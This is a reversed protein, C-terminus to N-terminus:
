RAGEVGDAQAAAAKLARPVLVRILWRRYAVSAHIDGLPTSEEAALAGADRLATESWSADQLSAEAQRARFPVPGAGGIAIQAGRVRGEERRLVVAVGVISMDVVRSAFKLYAGATGVGPVPISFETVVETPALCTEFYGTFFEDLPVKREGDASAVTATADLALLAPPPDAGVANHATNGGVTGMNRIQMPGVAAAAEALTPLLRRVTPDSELTRITTMAGIRLAGNRREVGVLGPVRALDVLATPTILGQRLMVMLSQGGAVLKADDGHEHLLALVEALREPDHYDPRRTM